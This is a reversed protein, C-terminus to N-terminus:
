CMSMVNYTNGRANELTANLNAHTKRPEQKTQGIARSDLQPIDYHMRIRPNTM